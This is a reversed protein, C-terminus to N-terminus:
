LFVFQPPCIGILCLLNENEGGKTPPEAMLVADGIVENLQSTKVAAQAYGFGNCDAGDTMLNHWDIGFYLHPM